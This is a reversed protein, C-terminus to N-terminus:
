THTPFSIIFTTGKKPESEVKIKGNYLNVIKNVVGLGLGTGTEPKTSFFPDYIRNLNENAIGIGNDSIHFVYTLDLDSKGSIQITRKLEKSNTKDILADISNQIINKFVSYFHLEDGKLHFSNELQIEFSINEKQILDNSEKQINFIIKITRSNMFIIENMM